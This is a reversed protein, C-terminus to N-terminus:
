INQMDAYVTNNIQLFEQFEDIVLTFHMTESLEMLYEFLEKFTKIQGFIKVDLTDQIILIFEECLLAENKKKFNKKV